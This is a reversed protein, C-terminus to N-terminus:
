RAGNMADVASQLECDRLWLERGQRIIYYSAANSFCVAYVRYERKVGHIRLMYGSNLKRGYGTSTQQLGRRQWDTLKRTVTFPLELYNM